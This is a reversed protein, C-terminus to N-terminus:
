VDGGGKLRSHACGSRCAHYLRTRQASSGIHSKKQEDMCRDRRIAGIIPCDVEEALLAGRVRAEVTKMAGRYNNNIVSTVVASSYGIRQAAETGSTRNADEALAMIWDPPLAGWAQIANDVFDTAPKAAQKLSANM